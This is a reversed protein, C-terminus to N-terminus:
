FWGLNKLELRLNEIGVFKARVHTLNELMVMGRKSLVTRNAMELSAPFVIREEM